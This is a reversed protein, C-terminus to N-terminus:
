LSLKEPGLNNEEYQRTGPIPSPHFTSNFRSFSASGKKKDSHILQEFIFVLHETNLTLDVVSSYLILSQMINLHLQDIFHFFHPSTELARWFTQAGFHKRALVHSTLFHPPPPPPNTKLFKFYNKFNNFVM